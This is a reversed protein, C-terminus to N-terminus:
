ASKLDMQAQKGARMKREYAQARDCAECSPTDWHWTPEEGKRVLGCLPWPPDLPPHPYKAGRAPRHNIGASRVSNRMKDM